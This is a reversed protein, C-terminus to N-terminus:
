YILRYKFKIYCILIGRVVTFDVFTWNRNLRFGSESKFHLYYIFAIDNKFHQIVKSLTSITYNRRVRINSDVSQFLLSYLSNSKFSYLVKYAIYLKYTM